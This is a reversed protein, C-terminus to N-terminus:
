RVLTNKMLTQVNKVLGHFLIAEADCQEECSRLRKIADLVHDKYIDTNMDSFNLFDDSHSLNAMNSHYYLHQLTRGGHLNVASNKWYRTYKKLRLACM